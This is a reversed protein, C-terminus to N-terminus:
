SNLPHKAVRRFFRHLCAVIMTDELNVVIFGVTVLVAGVIYLPTFTRHQWVADVIMSLPTSLTLGLTAVLPSTLVVSRAWLVDSLNTGILANVVLPWFQQLTPLAFIEFKVADLIPLGPWMAVLNVVGVMGFAMAMSYRDDDPLLWKLVTTYIAYFMASVVALIDGSVGEGALGSKGDSFAIMVSGGICLVVAGVKFISVRHGLLIVSLLLTWICSTSSLVTNSAVSTRSLSLNFLYNAVFWFPCFLCACRFLQFKSYPRIREMEGDYDCPLLEEDNDNDNNDPLRNKTAIASNGRGRGASAARNNNADKNTNTSTNGMGDDLTPPFVEVSDIMEYGEKGKDDTVAATNSNSGAFVDRVHSDVFIIPVPKGTTKWPIRRWSPIVLYGLNWLAFGTTNFYTLFYPKEYELEGFIHQIWVSSGVWIVTVCLILLVGLTHKGIAICKWRRKNFCLCCCTSKKEAYDEGTYIEQFDGPPAPTTSDVSQKAGELILGVTDADDAGTERGM